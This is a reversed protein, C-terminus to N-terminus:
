CLVYWHIFPSDLSSIVLTGGALVALAESISPLSPDLARSTPILQTLLRSNAGNGNVIGTNLSLGLEWESAVNVWDPAWVGHPAKPKSKIYALANDPDCHSTLSGGSVSASYETSCSPSLAVRMCCMTYNGTASTALLYVSEQGWIKSYNFVTNHPQPFNPFIPHEQVGDFGFLDDVATTTLSSPVTLNFGNPRHSDFNTPM